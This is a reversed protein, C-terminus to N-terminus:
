KSKIKYATEIAIRKKKANVISESIIYYGNIKKIMQLILSPLEDKNRYSKSYVMNGNKNTSIRLVDFNDLIYKIRAIDKIDAMSHDAKGNIGHRKIIHNLQYGDIVIKYESVDINILKIIDDIHKSTPKGIVYTAKKNPNDIQSNIFDLLRYDIAKEYEEKIKNKNELKNM